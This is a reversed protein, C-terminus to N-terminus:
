ATMAIYLNDYFEYNVTFDVPYWDIPRIKVYSNYTYHDFLDIHLSFRFESVVNLAMNFSDHDNTM